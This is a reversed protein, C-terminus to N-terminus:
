EKMRLTSIDLKAKAHMSGIVPWEKQHMERAEGLTLMWWTPMCALVHQWMQRWMQKVQVRLPLRSYLCTHQPTCPDPSSPPWGNRHRGTIALPGWESSALSDEWRSPQVCTAPIGVNLYILLPKPNVTLHWDPYKAVVPFTSKSIEM